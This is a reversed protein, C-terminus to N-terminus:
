FVKDSLKGVVVVLCNKDTLPGDLYVDIVKYVEGKLIFYDCELKFKPSFDPNILSVLELDELNFSLKKDGDDRSGEHTFEKMYDSTAQLAEELGVINYDTYTALRDEEFRDLAEDFLKYVVPSKMFTDTVDKVADRFERREAETLLDM